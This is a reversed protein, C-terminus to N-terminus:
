ESCKGKIVALASEFHHGVRAQLRLPRQLVHLLLHVGGDVSLATSPLADAVLRLLAGRHHGQAIQHRCHRPELSMGTNVLEEGAASGNSQLMCLTLGLSQRGIQLRDLLADVTDNPFLLVLHLVRKDLLSCPENGHACRAVADEKGGRAITLCYSFVQM